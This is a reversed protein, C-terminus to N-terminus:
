TRPQARELEEFLRANEIAIVAQDAFTELLAIQQETFPRVEFGHSSRARRDARRRAAAARGARDSPRGAGADTTAPYEDRRGALDAIHVHTARAVCPRRSQRAELRTAARDRSAM